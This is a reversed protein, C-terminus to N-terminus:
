PKKIGLHKEIRDVSDKISSGDNNHTEHHIADVKDRLEPLVILSNIIDTFRSLFPWTKIIFTIVLGIFTLWILVDAASITDLWEQAWSPM